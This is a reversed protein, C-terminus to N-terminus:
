LGLDRVAFFVAESFTPYPQITDLLVDVPVEAERDRWGYSSTHVVGDHRTRALEWWALRGDDVYGAFHRDLRELRAPDFGAEAAARGETM